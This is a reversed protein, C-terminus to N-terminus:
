ENQYCSFIEKDHTWLSEGDEKKEEQNKPTKKKHVGEGSRRLAVCQRCSNWNCHLPFPYPHKLLESQRSHSLVKFGRQHQPIKKNWFTLFFLYSTLFFFSYNKMGKGHNKLYFFSSTTM